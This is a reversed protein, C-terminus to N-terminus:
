ESTLEHAHVFRPESREPEISAIWGAEIGRRLLKRSGTGQMGLESESARGRALRELLARLRRHRSATAALAEGGTPTPVYDRPALPVLKAPRSLVPSLEM